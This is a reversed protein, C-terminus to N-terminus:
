LRGITTHHVNYSKVISVLTEGLERRERAEQRQHSTLKYPRGIKRGDAKARTHGESIRGRILEREFEALGELVTLM